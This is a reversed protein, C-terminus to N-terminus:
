VTAQWQASSITASVTVRTENPSTQIPGRDEIRLLGMPSRPRRQLELAAIRDNVRLVARADDLAHLLLGGEALLTVVQDKPRDDALHLERHRDVLGLLDPHARGDAGLLEVVEHRHQGLGVGPHRGVPRPAELVMLLLQLRAVHVLHGFHDPVEGGAVAVGRERGGLARHVLPRADVEDGLDGGCKM